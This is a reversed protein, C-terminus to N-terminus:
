KRATFWRGEEVVALVMSPTSVRLLMRLMDTREDDQFLLARFKGPEIGIEEAINSIVTLFLLAEDKFGDYAERISREKLSYKEVMDAVIQKTLKPEQYAAIDVAMKFKHRDAAYDLYRHRDKRKSGGKLIEAILARGEKGLEKGSGVREALARRDGLEAQDLALAALCLEEVLRIKESRSVSSSLIEGLQKSLDDKGTM